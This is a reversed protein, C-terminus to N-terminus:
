KQKRVNIAVKIKIKIYINKKMQLIKKSDKMFLRKKKRRRGRQLAEMQCKGRPDLFFFFFDLRRDNRM